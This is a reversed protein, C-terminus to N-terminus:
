KGFAKSQAVEAKQAKTEQETIPLYDYVLVLAMTLITVLTLYFIIFLIGLLSGPM